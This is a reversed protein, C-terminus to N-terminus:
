RTSSPPVDTIIFLKEGPKILGLERRVADEIAGLDSELLNKQERLWITKRRAADLRQQEARAEERARAMAILGREGILSDGLVLCGILVLVSEIIRRRRRRPSLDGVRTVRPQRKM